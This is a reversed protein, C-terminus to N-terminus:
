ISLVDAFRSLAGVINIPNQLFCNYLWMLELLMHTVPSIHSLKYSILTFVSM